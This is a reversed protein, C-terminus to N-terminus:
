VTDHERHSLVMGVDHRCQQQKKDPIRMRPKSVGMVLLMDAMDLEVGMGPTRLKLM